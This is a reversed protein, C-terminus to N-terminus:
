PALAQRFRYFRCTGPANTDTFQILGAPDATARGIVTWNAVDTSALVDFSYGPTTRGTLRLWKNTIATLSLAPSMVQTVAPVPVTYSIESSRPGEMGFETYAAVAIYYTLGPLLNTFTATTAAGTDLVTTYNGSTTGLYVRYGAAASGPEPDWAITVAAATAGTVLGLLTIGGLRKLVTWISKLPAM